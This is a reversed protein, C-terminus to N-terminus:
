RFGPLYLSNVMKVVNRAQESQIQFIRRGESFSSGFAARSIVDGTLNQFEPWVDIEKTENVGVHDEWRTVLDNCCAVFAPLM